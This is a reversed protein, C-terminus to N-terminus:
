HLKEVSMKLILFVLISMIGVLLWITTIEPFLSSFLLGLLRQSPEAGKDLEKGVVSMSFKSIISILTLNIGVTLLLTKGGTWSKPTTLKGYLFFLVILLILEVGLAYFLIKGLGNVIKIKETIEKPAKSLSWQINVGNFNTGIVVDNSDGNVYDIIQSLSKEAVDKLDAPSINNIIQSYGLQEEKLLNPDNPLSNILINSLKEYVKHNQFTGFLFSKNLIEFRFTALLIFSSFLLSFAIGLIIKGLNGM